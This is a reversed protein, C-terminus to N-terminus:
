SCSGGIGTGGGGYGSSLVVAFSLYPLVRGQTLCRAPLSPLPPLLSIHAGSWGFDVAWSALRNRFSDRSAQIPSQPVGRIESQLVFQPPAVGQEKGRIGDKGGWGRRNGSM